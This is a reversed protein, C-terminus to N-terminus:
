SRWSCGAAQGVPPRVRGAPASSPLSPAPVRSGKGCCPFHVAMTLSALSTLRSAHLTGLYQDANQDSRLVLKRIYALTSLLPLRLNSYDREGLMANPSHESNDRRSRHLAMEPHPILPAQIRYPTLDGITQCPSTKMADLCDGSSVAVGCEVCPIMSSEYDTQITGIAGDVIEAM